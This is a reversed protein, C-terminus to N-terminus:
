SKAEFEREALAEDVRDRQTALDDVVPLRKKLRLINGGLNSLAYRPFVPAGDHLYYPQFRAVDLLARGEDPTLEIGAAALRETWPLAKHAKSKVAANVAKMRAREAELTAIRERLRDAADHDDTFITHGLQAVIGAAKAEHQRAMKLDEFAREECRILRAREPIHGPQTNFAHDGRYREQEAAVPAAKARRKDAWEERRAIRAEARERRTM